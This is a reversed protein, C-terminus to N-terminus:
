NVHTESHTRQGIGNSAEIWNAGDYRFARRYDALIWGASSSPMSIDILESQQMAPPDVAIWSGGTYHLLHGYEGVAWADTASVVAVESIEPFLNTWNSVTLDNPASRGRRDGPSHAHYLERSGKPSPLEIRDRLPDRPNPGAFRSQFQKPQQLQQQPPRVPAAAHVGATSVPMIALVALALLSGTIRWLRTIRPNRAHDDSRTRIRSLSLFRAM